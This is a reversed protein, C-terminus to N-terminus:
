MEDPCGQPQFNRKGEELFQVLGEYHITPYPTGGMTMIEWLLIGYSWSLMCIFM